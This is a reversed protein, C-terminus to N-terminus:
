RKALMGALTAAKDALQEAFALNKVKLAAEAQEAFRRAEDYQARGDTNLTKVVIGGLDRTARALLARINQELEEV